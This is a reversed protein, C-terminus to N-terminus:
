IFPKVSNKIHWGLNNEGKGLCGEFSIMGVGGRLRTMYLRDTHSESLFASNMTVIKRLMRDMNKLENRTRTLIGAGYRLVSLPWTSIALM